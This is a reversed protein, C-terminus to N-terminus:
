TQSSRFTDKAMDALRWRMDSSFDMLAINSSNGALEKM